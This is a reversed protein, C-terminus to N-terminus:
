DLERIAQGMEAFAETVQSKTVSLRDSLEMPTALGASIIQRFISQLQRASLNYKTMLGHDDVGSNIDNLVQRANIKRKAKSHEARQKALYDLAAAKYLYFKKGALHYKRQLIEDSIGSKIDQLFQATTSAPKSMEEDASIGSRMAHPWDLIEHTFRSWQPSMRSLPRENVPQEPASLYM